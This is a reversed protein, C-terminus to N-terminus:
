VHANVLEIMDHLTESKKVQKARRRAMELRNRFEAKATETGLAVAVNVCRGPRDEDVMDTLDDAIQYAIGLHLGCERLPLVQDDNAGGAIAGVYAAAAFLLGTKDAAVRIVAPHGGDTHGNLDYAQGSAMGYPGICRTLEAIIMRCRDDKIMTQTPLHLALSVLSHATLVAMEPSFAKHFAPKGRRRPANDMSPHDDLLISAIHLLEVSAAVDLLAPIRPGFVEGAALTLISRLRKGEDEVAHSIVRDLIPSSSWPQLRALRLNVADRWPLLKDLFIQKRSHNM